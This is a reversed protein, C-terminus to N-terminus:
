IIHFCRNSYMLQELAFKAMQYAEIQDTAEIYNECNACDMDGTGTSARIVCNKEINMIELARPFEM